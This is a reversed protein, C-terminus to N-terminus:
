DTNPYVHLFLTTLSSMWIFCRNLSYNYLVIDEMHTFGMMTKQTHLM